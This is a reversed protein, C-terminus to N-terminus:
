FMEAIKALLELEIPEAATYESDTTSPFRPSVM